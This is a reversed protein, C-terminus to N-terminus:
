PQVTTLRLTSVTPFVARTASFSSNLVVGYAACTIFTMRSRSLSDSATKRCVRAGSLNWLLITSGGM